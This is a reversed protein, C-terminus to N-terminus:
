EGYIDADTLKFIIMTEPPYAALQNAFSDDDDKKVKAKINITVKQHEEVLADYLTKLDAIDQSSVKPLITYKTYDKDFWSGEKEFDVSSNERIQLKASIDYDYDQQEIMKAIKVMSEYDGSAKLKLTAKYPIGALELRGAIMFPDPETGKDDLQPPAFNVSISYGKTLLQEYQTIVEELELGDIFENFTRETLKNNEAAEEKPYIIKVQYTM